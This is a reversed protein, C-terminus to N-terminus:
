QLRATCMLLDIIGLNSVFENGFLQPYREIQKFTHTKKPHFAGRLDKIHTKLPESELSSLFQIDIKLQLMKLCSTLIELNIDILFPHKKNLIKDWYPYFHEFFPAKGYATQIARLHDKLWTQSYDIKVDKIQKKKSGAPISLSQIGNSTLITTRNRYSQKEFREKDDIIITDGQELNYFWDTPPFYFSETIIM